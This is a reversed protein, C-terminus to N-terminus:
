EVFSWTPDKLLIFEIFQLTFGNSRKYVLYADTLYLCIQWDVFGRSQRADRRRM